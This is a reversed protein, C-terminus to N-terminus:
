RAEARPAPLLAVSDPAHRHQIRAGDGPKRGRHRYYLWLILRTATDDLHEKLSFLRSPLLVFYTSRPPPYCRLVMRGEHKEIVSGRFTDDVRRARGRSTRELVALDCEVEIEAIRALSRRVCRRASAPFTGKDPGTESRRYGLIELLQSPRFPLEVEPFGYTTFDCMRRPQLSALYHLGLFTFIDSTPQVGGAQRCRFVSPALQAMRPHMRFWDAASM